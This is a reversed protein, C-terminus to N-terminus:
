DSRRDALMTGVKAGLEGMAFPKSIMEMGPDLFNARVAANPAYGTVFLVPLDPRSRRAIEAVQRGNMGPLGVDTILLEIPLKSKIHALAGDANSAQLAQYGLEALAEVILMRVSDEDEVVLVTEGAGAPQARPEPRAEPAEAMRGARPLYMKVTTGQDPVSYIGAHGGTQHLFGYIMSLGLGTGQGIPKTTFFPEFAKSVTKADMGHGTDTVSIEVYDGPTADLTRSAYSDDLTLNRAEITLQGGGPMADRANIALNLIANELQNADSIAHWTEPDGVVRLRVQEGLTRSLLDELSTLLRNVDLPRPDLSQQRSFALLRQTLGAARKASTTAADMYRGLDDIRGEAIRRQILDLSGIVGTLM